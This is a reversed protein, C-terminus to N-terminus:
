NALMVAQLFCFINLEVVFETCDKTLSTTKIITPNTVEMINTAIVAGIEFAMNEEGVISAIGASSKESQIAEM